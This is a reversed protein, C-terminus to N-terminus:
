TTSYHADLAEDLPRQRRQTCCNWVITAYNEASVLTLIWASKHSYKYQNPVPCCATHEQGSPRVHSSCDTENFNELACSVIKLFLLKVRLATNTHGIPHTTQAIVHYHTRILRSFSDPYSIIAFETLCLAVPVCYSCWM